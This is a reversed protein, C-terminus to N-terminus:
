FCFTLFSPHVDADLCCVEWSQCFLDYKYSLWHHLSCCRLHLYLFHTKNKNMQSLCGYIFFGRLPVFFKSSLQKHVTQKIRQTTMSEPCSALASHFESHSRGREIFWYELIAGLSEPFFNKLLNIMQGKLELLSKSVFFVKGFITQGSTRTAMNSNIFWYFM